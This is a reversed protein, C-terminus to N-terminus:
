GLAACGLTHTCPESSAAASWRGAAGGAWRIAGTDSPEFAATPADQQRVDWVRVCGDRGCTVLEPPGYGKAQAPACRAPQTSCDDLAAADSHQCTQQLFSGGASGAPQAWPGMAVAVAGACRAASATWATSSPRTRRCRSSPSAPTSWTGSRCSGRSTAPPWSRTACRPPALAAASSPTPSRLSRPWRSSRATSSTSRRRRAARRNARQVAGCASGCSVDGQAGAPQRHRARLRGAGRDQGNGTDMQPPIAYRDAGGARLAPM